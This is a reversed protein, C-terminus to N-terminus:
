RGPLRILQQAQPNARVGGSTGPNGIIRTRLLRQGVIVSTPIRSQILSIGVNQVVPAAVLATRTPATVVRPTTVVAVSRPQDFTARPVGVEAAFVRAAGRVAGKAPILDGQEAQEVWQRGKQLGFAYLGDNLRNIAQPVSEADPVAQAPAGASVRQGAPIVVGTRDILEGAEDILRQAPPGSFYVVEGHSVSFTVEDADARAVFSAGRSLVYAEAAASRGAFLLWRQDSPKRVILAHGATLTLGLPVGSDLGSAEALALESRSQGDGLHIVTEYGPLMLVAAGDDATVITEGPQLVYDFAYYDWDTDPFAPGGVGRFAGGGTLATVVAHPGEIQQAWLVSCLPATLLFVLGTVRKCASM